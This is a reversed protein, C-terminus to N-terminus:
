LFFRWGLSVNLTGIASAEFITRDQSAYGGQAELLLAGLSVHWEVGLTAFGGIETSEEVFEGFPAGDASANMTSRVLWARAGLGAYPRVTTGVPIRYIAGLSLRLHEQKVDHRAIGDGPLRPDTALTDDGEPAAWQGAVFLEIARDLAPLQWGIEIEVAPSLGLANFPQAFDVGAKAGLTLGLTNNGGTEYLLPDAAATGCLLTTAVLARFM